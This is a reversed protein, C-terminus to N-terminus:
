KRVKLISAVLATKGGPIKSAGVIALGKGAYKRLDEISEKLLAAMDMKNFKAWAKGIVHETLVTKVKEKKKTGKGKARKAESALAKAVGAIAKMGAILRDPDTEGPMFEEAFDKGTKTLKDKSILKKEEAVIEALGGDAKSGDFGLADAARTLSGTEEKTESEQPLDEEETFSTDPLHSGNHNGMVKYKCVRMKQGQHDRPVSVVNEPDVKCVVIRGGTHFTRAYELAGVHFGEDCEVQHDDSIKNRPMQNTVGPKNSFTNSHVDNYDSRVAKYALFCGDKTLPIGKHDLFEWLQDVSRYSPNKKLREWFRFLPTPDEGASAMKIIRANINNPIAEGDFSFNEDKITVKGKAWDKLNKAVTLNKPVSEWDEAVIARRLAEFHATGKQVVYSKGEWVITISENSMSFPPPAIAM